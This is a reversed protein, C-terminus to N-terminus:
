GSCCISLTVNACRGVQTGRVEQFHERAPDNVASPKRIRKARSKIGFTWVGMPKKLLPEWKIERVIGGGLTRNFGLLPVNTTSSEAVPAPSRFIPRVIMGRM